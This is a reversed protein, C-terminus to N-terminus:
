FLDLADEVIEKAQSKNHQAIKQIQPQKIKQLRSLGQKAMDLAAEPNDYSMTVPNFQGVENVLTVLTSAEEALGAAQLGSGVHYALMGAKQGPTELKQALGFDIQIPRGTMKHVFINQGHRDNLAIGNLALQSLQKYTEVEATKIDAASLQPNYLDTPTGLQVYNKRLDQMTIEGRMEPNPGPGLAVTRDGIQPPGMYTEQIRPAVGLESARAQLNIENLLMNKEELPIEKIVSGPVGEYVQGFQGSGVKQRQAARAAMLRMEELSVGQQVPPKQRLVKLIKELM